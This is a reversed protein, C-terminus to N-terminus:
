RYSLDEKVAHNEILRLFQARLIGLRQAQCHVCLHTISFYNCLNLVFSLFHHLKFKTEIRQNLFIFVYFVIQEVLVFGPLVFM